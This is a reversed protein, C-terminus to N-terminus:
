RKCIIKKLIINRGILYCCNKLCLQLWLQVTRKAILEYYIEFNFNFIITNSIVDLGDIWINKSMSSFHDRNWSFCWFFFFLYIFLLSSLVTVLRNHDDGPEWLTSRSLSFYTKWHKLFRSSPRYVRDTNVQKFDVISVSSHTM